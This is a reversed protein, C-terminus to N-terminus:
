KTAPEEVWNELGHRQCEASIAALTEPRYKTNRTSEKLVGRVEARAPEGMREVADFFGSWDEAKYAKSIGETAFVKRAAPDTVKAMWDWLGRKSDATDVARVVANWVSSKEQSSASEISPMAKLLRDISALDQRDFLQSYVDERMGPPLDRTLTAAAEPDKKALESLSRGLAFSVKYDQMRDLSRWHKALAPALEVGHYTSANSLYNHQFRPAYLRALGQVAGEPDVACWDIFFNISAGGPEGSSGRPLRMLEDWAASFDAGTARFIPNPNVDASGASPTKQVVVVPAPAPAPMDAEKKLVALWGGLLILAGHSLLLLALTSPKM